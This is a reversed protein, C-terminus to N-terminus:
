KRPIYLAIVKYTTHESGGYDAYNSSRKVVKKGDLFITCFYHHYCDDWDWGEPQPESDNMRHMFSKLQSETRLVVMSLLHEKVQVSNVNM